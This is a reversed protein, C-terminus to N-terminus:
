RRRRRRAVLMAFALVTTWVVPLGESSPAGVRCGCGDSHHSSTGGDGVGGDPTPPTVKRRCGKSTACWTDDPLPQGYGHDCQEGRAPDVIGDGCFAPVCTTRCADPTTDSNQAGEDCTEGQDIVHDGCHARKCSTRCANPATNSNGSTGDDCEEHPPDILGDGCTLACVSPGHTPEHCAYGTEIRCTSSCGDGDVTNGDDCQEVPVRQGNGCASVCAGNPDNLPRSSGPACDCTHPIGIQNVCVENLPCAGSQGVCDDVDLCVKGNGQYGSNCSCTFSGPPSNTCTGNPSCDHTQMLCEDVDNCTVGDGSYGSKCACTYSGHTNTCTGNVSCNNGGGQGTCEDLDTCTVGDGSFGSKCACTFSGQTNNCTADASCNNGGNTCENVDSCLVTPDAGQYGSDCVCTESGAAGTYHANTACTTCSYGGAVNTCAQNSGCPRPANACENVDMCGTYPDAGSYGTDCVCVESGAAGTYHANAGCTTCRYSGATDTCAQNSACLRPVNTCENVNTCGNAGIGTGTYGAACGCVFSGPTNTCTSNPATCNNGGGQGACEDFDTCGNVGIGSGGYGSKCTCTPNTSGTPTCTANSNCYTPMTLCNNTVVCTTGDFSYGSPCACSYSGASNTCMATTAGNQNCINTPSCENIDNCVYNLTSWTGAATCSITNTGTGQYGSSCTYTATQGYTTGGAYVRTANALVPPTGCDKITCTTTTGSWTGPNVTGGCTRSSSGGLTYGTACSLTAVSGWNQANSYGITGNTLSLANCTILQCTPASGSWTGPNSVGGCTRTTNGGVLTYGPSCSYTAVSGWNQSSPYSISGNAISPLASCTIATCTPQSGSWTNNAQCTRTASSSLVYGSNCSFSAVSNYAQGNTYSTTGNTLPITGCNVATNCGWAGSGSTGVTGLWGPACRYSFSYHAYTGALYTAQIQVHGSSCSQWTGANVGANYFDCGLAEASSHQGASGTGTLDSSNSTGDADTDATTLAGTWGNNQYYAWGFPNLCPFVPAGTCGSGGSASLHCDTCQYTGGYVNTVMYSPYAHATGSGGVLAGGFALLALGLLAVRGHPAAGRPELPTRRSGRRRLRRAVVAAAALGSFVALPISRGPAPPVAVSCGSSGNSCSPDVIVECTGANCHNLQCAGAGTCQADSTCGCDTDMADAKGDCDDDKGNTCLEIRNPSVTADEDDCDAGYRQEDADLCDGDGTDDVGHGCFGDHDFDYVYECGRDFLDVDGDCDNDQHDFCPQTAAGDVYQEPNGPGIGANGQDCDSLRYNEGSDLCDGDGNVDKGIACYGDHDPDSDGVCEPDVLDTQGDQDNDKGDYCSEHRGPSITGDLPDADAISGAPQENADACDGDANLDIGILCYGDFDIDAYQVCAPDLADASGDCDDDKGNTCVETAGYYISADADDCDFYIQVEGPDTCDGNNSLDVGVPCYGDDDQDLYGVCTPDTLNPKGDCNQDVDDTCIETAGPHITADKDNCDSAVGQEGVDICNGNAPMSLDQGNPCYGDGDLDAVASCDSDSFDVKGDCDDDRRNGCVETASPNVAANRDDCDSAATTEGYQADLCDGDPTTPGADGGIDRGIPCYHDHDADGAGTCDPDSGDIQGDCDNDVLDNCVEFALSNVTANTDDCDVDSTSEGADLCNRNGNDDRGNPCVGDQDNDVVNSCSPEQLTALGNCDDDILNTCLETAGPHVAANSDNCDGQAVATGVEGADLCDHDGNMDHGYWCWGDSDADHHGPSDAADGPRTAYAPVGPYDNGPTWLGMPDQLEEGNTFGDGDSDLAALADNWQVGASSFAMGFPNLCHATAPYSTAGGCGTGGDPNNHCTICKKTTGNSAVASAPNPVLGPYSEYARAPTTALGLVTIVLGIGFPAARRIRDRGNM